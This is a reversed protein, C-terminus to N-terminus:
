SITSTSYHIRLINYKYSLTNTPYIKPDNIRLAVCKYSLRNILNNYKYSLTNTGTCNREGDKLVNIKGSEYSTVMVKVKSRQFRVLEDWTSSIGECLDSTVDLLVFVYKTLGPSSWRQGKVVLVLWNTWFGFKVFSGWPIGSIDWTMLILRVSLFLGGGWLPLCSVLM